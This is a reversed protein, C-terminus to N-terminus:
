VNLYDKLFIRAAEKKYKKYFDSFDKVKYKRPIFFYQLEPHSKKIKRM